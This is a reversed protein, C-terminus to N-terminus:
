IYVNNNNENLVISVNTLYRRKFTKKQLKIKLIIKKRISTSCFFNFSILLSRFFFFLALSSSSSSSSFFLLLMLLFSYFNEKFRLFVVYDLFFDFDVIWLWDVFSRVFSCVLLSINTHTFTYIYLLLLIYFQISPEQQIHNKEQKWTYVRISNYILVKFNSNPTSTTSHEILFGNKFKISASIVFLLSCCKTTSIVYFHSLSNQTLSFPELTCMHTHAYTFSLLSLFTPFLQFCLCSRRHSM